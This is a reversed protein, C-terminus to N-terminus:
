KQDGKNTEDGAEDSPISPQTNIRLDIELARCHVCRRRTYTENYKWEHSCGDAEDSSGSPHTNQYGETM